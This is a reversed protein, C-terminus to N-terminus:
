SFSACMGPARQLGQASTASNYSKFCVDNPARQTGQASHDSGCSPTSLVIPVPSTKMITLTFLMGTMITNFVDTNPRVVFVGANFTRDFDLNFDGVASFEAPSDFIEDFNQLVVTDSDLYIHIILSYLIVLADRGTHITSYSHM